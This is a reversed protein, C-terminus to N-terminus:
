PAASPFPFCFSSARVAGGGRPRSGARDGLPPPLLQPPSAGAGGAGPRGGSAKGTINLKCSSSNTKSGTVLSLWRSNLDRSGPNIPLRFGALVLCRLPPPTLGPELSGLDRVPKGREGGAGGGAVM